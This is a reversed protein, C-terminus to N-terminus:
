SCLGIPVCKVDINLNMQSIAPIHLPCRGDQARYKRCTTSGGGFGKLDLVPLDDEALALILIRYFSNQHTVPIRLPDAPVFESREETDAAEM